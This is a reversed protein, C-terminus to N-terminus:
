DVGAPVRFRILIPQAVRAYEENSIFPIDDEDVWASGSPIPGAEPAYRVDVMEVSYVNRVAM